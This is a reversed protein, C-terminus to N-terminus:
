ETRFVFVPAHQEVSEFLEALVGVSFSRQHQELGEVTVLVVHQVAEFPSDLQALGYPPVGDLHHAVQEVHVYLFVVGALSDTASVAVQGVDVEGVAVAGMGPGAVGVEGRDEARQAVDPEVAVQGHLTADPTVCLRHERLYSSGHPRQHPLLAPAGPSSASYSSPPLSLM